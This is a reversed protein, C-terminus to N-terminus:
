PIEDKEIMMMTDTTYTNGVFMNFGNINGAITLTIYNGKKWERDSGMTYDVDVMLSKLEINATRGFFVEAENKALEKAADLSECVVIDRAIQDSYLEFNEIAYRKIFINVIMLLITTLMVSVISFEM